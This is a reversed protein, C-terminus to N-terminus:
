AMTFAEARTARYVHSSGPAGRVCDPEPMKDVGCLARCMTRDAMSCSRWAMLAEALRRVAHARVRLTALGSRHKILIKPACRMDVVLKATQAIGRPAWCGGSSHGPAGRMIPRRGARSTAPRGSM